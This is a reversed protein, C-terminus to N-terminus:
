LSTAYEKPSIGFYSKFLESLHSASTFSLKDALQRITYQGSGLLDRALELKNNLFFANPTQGTIKKYLKKYKTESMNAEAALSAIGPFVGEQKKILNTQSTLIMALDSPLVKSIMIERKMINDLCDAMLNYVLGSLLLNFSICGPM